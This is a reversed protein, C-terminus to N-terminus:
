KLAIAEDDTFFIELSSTYPIERTNVNERLSQIKFIFYSKKHLVTKIHIRKLTNKINKKYILDFSLKNITENRLLQRGKRVINWFKLSLRSFKLFSANDQM